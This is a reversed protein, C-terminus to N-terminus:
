RRRGAGTRRASPAATRSLVGPGPRPHQRRRRGGCGPDLAVRGSAAVPPLPPAPDPEANRGGVTGRSAPPAAVRRAGLSSRRATPTPPWSGSLGASRSPTTMRSIPVLPGAGPLDTMRREAAAASRRRRPLFTRRGRDGRGMDRGRHWDADRVARRQHLGLGHRVRPGGCRSGPTPRRSPGTTSRSSNRKPTPGIPHPSAAWCFPIPPSRSPPAPPRCRGRRAAAARSSRRTSRITPSRQRRTSRPSPRGHPDLPPKGSPSRGLGRSASARGDPARRGGLSGSTEPFPESGVPSRAPAWPGGRARAGADRAGPHGSAPHSSLWTVPPLTVRLSPPHACSPLLPPRSPPQPGCPCPWSRRPLGSDAGTVESTVESVAGSRVRGVPRLRMPNLRSARSGPSPRPRPMSRRRRARPACPIPHRPAPEVPLVPPPTWGSEPPLPLASSSSAPLPLSPHVGAPDRSTRTPTGVKAAPMRRPGAVPANRGTLETGLWRAPGFGLISAWVPLLLAALLTMGVGHGFRRQHPLVRRDAAGLRHPTRRVSHPHAPLAVGLAAWSCCCSGPQPDAGVRGPSNARSASCRPCGLATWVYLVVILSLVILSALGLATSDDITNMAIRARAPHGPAEGRPSARDPVPPRWTVVFSGVIRDRPRRALLRAGSGDHAAGPRRHGFAAADGASTFRRSFVARDADRRPFGPRLRSCGALESRTLTASANRGSDVAADVYEDWGGAIQVAPQGRTRRARRRSAKAAAVVRVSGGRAAARAARHQRHTLDALALRPGRRRTTPPDEAGNDEQVPDPPVVDEVPDAAGRHRERPQAARHGRSRPSRTSRRRMSRIWQGAASHVETWAALDQARCM